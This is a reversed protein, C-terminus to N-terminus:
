KGFRQRKPKKWELLTAADLEIKSAKRLLQLNKRPVLPFHRSADLADALWQLKEEAAFWDKPPYKRLDFPGSYERLVKKGDDATYEHFYSAALERVSAYIPDRYRLVSHNTKSTAGWLGRQRFLAVTHDDEDPTARLDLLLPPQGHYTFAAAALLTGEFCHAVGGALTLRPSMYTDGGPEFNFPLKDLYDQIKRPTSLRALVRKESTTLLVRLQNAYM